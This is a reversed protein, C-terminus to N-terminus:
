RLMQIPRYASCACTNLAATLIYTELSTRYMAPKNSIDEHYKSYMDTSRVKSVEVCPDNLRLLITNLHRRAHDAFRGKANVKASKALPGFLWMANERM